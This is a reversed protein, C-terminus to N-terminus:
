VSVQKCLRLTHQRLSVSISWRYVPLLNSLCEGFFFSPHPYPTPPHRLHSSSSLPSSSVQASIIWTSNQKTGLVDELTHVQTQTSSPFTSHSGKMVFVDSIVCVFFCMHRTGNKKGTDATSLMWLTWVFVADDNMRLQVGSHGQTNGCLYNAVYVCPKWDILLPELTPELASWVGIILPNQM